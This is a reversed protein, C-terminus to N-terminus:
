PSSLSYLGGDSLRPFGYRGTIYTTGASVVAELTPNHNAHLFAFDAGDIDLTSRMVNGGQRILRILANLRTATVEDTVSGRFQLM